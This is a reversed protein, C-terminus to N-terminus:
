DPDWSMPSLLGVAERAREAEEKKRMVKEAFVSFAQWGERSTSIAGIIASLTLDPGIARILASREDRWEVCGAITHDANDEDLKCYPCDAVAAKGIRKLYIGFCGHGTLLQTVHFSLGGWARTMWSDLWPLIADRLRVGYADPRSIFLRWQRQTIIRELRKIEELLEPTYTGEAKADQARWFIRAREAAMLELPILRGLLTSSDFSISRYGACVRVAVVRQWRRFRRRHDENAVLVDAWIPAAYLVVSSIIGAYLRRKKEIPGRLNPMLRGLARSVKGIKGEIHSFHTNFKLKSDLLVGLYKLFPRPKVRVNGIRVTIDAPSVRKRGWFLVVETKEPAVEISLFEFRRVVCRLYDNIHDQVAETSGGVCMVLTM